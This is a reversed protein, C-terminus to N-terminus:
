VSRVAAKNAFTSFYKKDSTVAQAQKCVILSM